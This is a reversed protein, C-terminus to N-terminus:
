IDQVYGKPLGRERGATRVKFEAKNNMETGQCVGTFTPLNLYAALRGVSRCVQSCAPGFVASYAQTAFRLHARGSLHLYLLNVKYPVNVALTVANIYNHM